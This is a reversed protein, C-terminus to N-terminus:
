VAARLGWRCRVPHGGRLVQLGPARRATEPERVTSRRSGKTQAQCGWSPPPPCHTLALYLLAVLTLLCAKKAESFDANLGSM